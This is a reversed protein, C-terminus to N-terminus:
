KLVDKSIITKMIESTGGYITTVRADAYAPGIPYETMFGYGGFLQLCRDTARNQLETGHLKAMAAEAPTLTGENLKLLCQDMFPQAVAVETAVEALVFKTNQFSAITTGFATREKVYEVTWDLAAKAAAVGFIGISLREQALNFALYEMAKGEEGLLNAAPVRVDSFFLEATDASKQGIKDLNRGREFGDMGREVVLLTMGGRAADPDTTCVVVVLDSNIGNTIFTKAGNLVFEDGDRVATTKIGALDSGTGPETMAIATVLEGSAIGPLWRDAQEDTCYEIFYPTVIDNHLTLGLGAGNIGRKALEEAIIANFRFDESGGGGHQEPVALGVFGHKGAATYLERDMIGAAEWDHYKPVMEADVFAAFSERFLEHTEDYITSM